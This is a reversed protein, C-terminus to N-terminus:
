RQVSLAVIYSVQRYAAMLAEILLKSPVFQTCHSFLTPLMDAAAAEPPHQIWEPSM